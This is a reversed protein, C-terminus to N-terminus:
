RETQRDTVQYRQIVSQRIKVSNLAPNRLSLQHRAFQHLALCVKHLPRNSHVDTIDVSNQSFHTCRPAAYQCVASNPSTSNQLFQYLSLQAKNFPTISNSCKNRNNTDLSLVPPATGGSRRYKKM